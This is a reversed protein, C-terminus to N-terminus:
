KERKDLGDLNNGSNNGLNNGLNNLPHKEDCMKALQKNSVHTYIETTAITKHGLLEQLARLDVGQNLLHTAFSHRVKHPTLNREIKLFSRFMKFIRQVSRTSLQTGNCNLFLYECAEHKKIMVREKELYSYLSECAKKGFFVVREKRGKGYVKVFREDFDIDVLKINVLEACRVGTAYMLEFVAKDRYPYKSPLDSIKISDLLYFIEDVTLITPLKKDLRPSKLNFSVDIDQRNLYDVLSRISSLKRALSTKSIKKYFLSVAYRKVVGEFTHDVHQEKKEITQWFADLQKLDSAYARITNESVHKEFRLFELFMQIKEGFM